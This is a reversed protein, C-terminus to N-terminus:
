KATRDLVAQAKVAIADMADGASMEGLFIQQYAPVVLQQVELWGPRIPLNHGYVDAIRRSNEEIMKPYKDPDAYMEWYKPDDICPPIRKAQMYLSEGEGEPGRLFKLFTWAGEVNASDANIGVINAECAAIASGAVGDGPEM